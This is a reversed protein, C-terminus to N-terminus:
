WVDPDIGAKELMSFKDQLFRQFPQERYAGSAVYELGSLHHFPKFYGPLRFAEGVKYDVIGASASPFIVQTPTFFVGWKGALDREELEEGDFDVVKRSGWLDLQVVLYNEQLFHRIEEREFNVQHLERCYPCGRQEFIVILGKGQVTADELDAGLELFSELFFPQDYLGDDGLLPDALSHGSIPIGALALGLFGILKRRYM